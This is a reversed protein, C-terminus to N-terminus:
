AGLLVPEGFQDLIDADSFTFDMEEELPDESDVEIKALNIKDLIVNKISITQKGITSQPDENTVVITFNTPLKGKKVFDIAMKRFTSTVYYLTMSGSGAWGIVKDQTNNNGLVKVQTKTLEINAEFTKIYFMDFVKGDITAVVKGERGNIIDNANMYTRTM